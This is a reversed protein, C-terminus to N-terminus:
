QELEKVMDSLSSVLSALGIAINKLMAQIIQPDTQCIELYKEGTLQWCSVATEARVDASRPLGTLMGIEGFSIGPCYSAFRITKGQVARTVTVRGAALLFLANGSDGERVILSGAPLELRTMVQALYSLKEPAIGKLIDFEAFPYEQEDRTTNGADKLLQEEATSLALDLNEFTRGQEVVRAFGMERFSRQLASEAEVHALFLQCKAKALSKDIRELAVIGSSDIGTTRKLDLIVIQLDKCTKELHQALQDSSGFFIAGQVEIVIMRGAIKNLAERTV